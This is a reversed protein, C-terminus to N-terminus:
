RNTPQINKKKKKNKKQPRGIRDASIDDPLARRTISTAEDRWFIFMSIPFDDFVIRYTAGPNGNRAMKLVFLFRRDSAFFFRFFFSNRKRKNVDIRKKKM